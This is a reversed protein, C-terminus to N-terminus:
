GHNPVRAIVKIEFRFGALWTAGVATWNLDPVDGLLRQKVRMVAEFQSEPDVHFTTVDVIDAFGCGAAALVGRLNEFALEIQAEIEEVPSGDAQAGVQGSVFLFDGSRIAARYGHMEYLAHPNEPTVPAKDAM